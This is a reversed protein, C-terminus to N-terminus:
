PKGRTPHVAGSRAAAVVVHRLEPDILAGLVDLLESREACASALVDLDSSTWRRLRALVNEIAADGLKIVFVVHLGLRSAISVLTALTPNWDGRTIRHATGRTTADAFDM